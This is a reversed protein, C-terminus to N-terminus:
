YNEIAEIWSRFETDTSMRWSVRPSLDVTGIKPGDASANRKYQQTSFRKYFNTLWKKLIDLDFFGEFANQAVDLIKQPSSGHRM